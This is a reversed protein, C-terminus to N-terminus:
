RCARDGALACELIAVDEMKKSFIIGAIANAIQEREHEYGKKSRRM